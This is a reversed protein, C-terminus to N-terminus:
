LTATLQHASKETSQDSKNSITVPNHFWEMKQLFGMINLAQSIQTFRSSAFHNFYLSIYATYGPLQQKVFLVERTYSCYLQIHNYDESEVLLGHSIVDAQRMNYVKGSTNNSRSTLIVVKARFDYEAVNRCFTKMSIEKMMKFIIGELM